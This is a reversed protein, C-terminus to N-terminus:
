QPYILYIISIIIIISIFSIKYIFIFMRYLDIVMLLEFFLLWSDSSSRGSTCLLLDLLEDTLDRRLVVELVFLLLLPQTFFIFRALWHNMLAGYMSTKHDWQCNPMLFQRKVSLSDSYVLSCSYHHRLAGNDVSSIMSNTIYVYGNGSKM